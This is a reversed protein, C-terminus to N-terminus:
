PLTEKAMKCLKYYHRDACPKNNTCRGGKTYGNVTIAYPYGEKGDTITAVQVDYYPEKGPQNTEEMVVHYKGIIRDKIRTIVRSKLNNQEDLFGHGKAKTEADKYLRTVTCRECDKICKTKQNCYNCLTKQADTIQEYEKMTIPRGM